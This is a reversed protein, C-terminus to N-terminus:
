KWHGAASFSAGAETHEQEGAERRGLMGWEAPPYSSSNETKKKRKLNKPHTATNCCFPPRALVTDVCAAGM